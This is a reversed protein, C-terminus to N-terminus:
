RFGGGGKEVLSLTGYKAYIMGGWDSKHKIETHTHTHTHTIKKQEILMSGMLVSTICLQETKSVANQIWSCYIGVTKLSTINRATLQHMQVLLIDIIFLNM